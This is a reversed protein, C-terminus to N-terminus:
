RRGIDPVVVVHSVASREFTVETGDRKACRLIGNDLAVLRLEVSRRTGDDDVFMRVTRGVNKAFQWEHELPRDIGPSGVHLEYPDDPFEADIGRGIARSLQACQDLTVGEPTDVVAEVMIQRKQPHVKAELCYVGAEEACGRVIAAMREHVPNM